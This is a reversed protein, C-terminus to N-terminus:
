VNVVPLEVQGYKEKLVVKLGCKSEFQVRPYPITKPQPDSKKYNCM